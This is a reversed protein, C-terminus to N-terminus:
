NKLHLKVVILLSPFAHMLLISIYLILLSAREMARFIMIIKKMLSIRITNMLLVFQILLTGFISEDIRHAPNICTVVRAVDIMPLKSKMVVHIFASFPSYYQTGDSNWVRLKLVQRLLTLQNGNIGLLREFDTNPIDSGNFFAIGSSSVNRRDDIFGIKVLSNTYHRARPEINNLYSKLLAAGEYTSKMSASDCCMFAERLNLKDLEANFSDLKSTNTFVHAAKNVANTYFRYQALSKPFSDWKLSQENQQKLIGLYDNYSVILDSRRGNTDTLNMVGSDSKIQM